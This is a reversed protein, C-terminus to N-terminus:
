LPWTGQARWLDTQSIPPPLYDVTLQPPPQPYLYSYPIMAWCGEEVEHERYAIRAPVPIYTQQSQGCYPQVQSM